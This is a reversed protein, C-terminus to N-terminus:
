GERIVYYITLEIQKITPHTTELLIRGARGGEGGGGLNDLPADQPVEITIPVFRVSAEDDPPAVNVKLYSPLVEKVSLATDLRHPGKISVTITRKAGAGHPIVGMTLTRTEPRMGQGFVLIDGVIVGKIPIQFPPVEKMNTTIELTQEFPGLRLGPKLTIRAMLSSRGSAEKAEEPTPPEFKVDFFGGIEHNLLRHKVVGLQDTQNTDLRVSEVVSAWAPVNNFAVTERSRRVAEEVRGVIGLVLEKREPDNTKFPASQAFQPNSSRIEWKLVIDRQGGPPIELLDGEKLDEGSTCSCTPKGMVLKLPQNGINRVVFKHSSEKWLPLSGFDFTEGDEVFVRPGKQVTNPSKLQEFYALFPKTPLTEGVFSQASTWIGLVIGLALFCAALVAIKMTAATPPLDRHVASSVIVEDGM